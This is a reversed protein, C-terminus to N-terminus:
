INKISRLVPWDVIRQVKEKEMKMRDLGIVVGLFKVERVKWVYKKPKIFLDNEVMRRLIEEVIDNYGEETQTGMMVNNNFVAVDEVEIINRLFNNMIVQFIALSNTLRFFIVMPEFVREPMLLVAKWKDGKKIKVNNYGWRLDIKM